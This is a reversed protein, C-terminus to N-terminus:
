RRLFGDPPRAGRMPVPPAQSAHPLPRTVKIVDGLLQNVDRYMDLVEEWREWLGM